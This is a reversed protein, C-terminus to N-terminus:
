YTIVAPQFDLGAKVFDIVIDPRQRKGQAETVRCLHKGSYHAKVQEWTSLSDVVLVTYQGHEQVAAMFDGNDGRTFPYPNDKEWIRQAMMHAIRHKCINGRLADHCQCWSVSSHYERNIGSLGAKSQLIGFARNVRGIELKGKRAAAKAKNYVSFLKSNM